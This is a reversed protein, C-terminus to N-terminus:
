KQDGSDVDDKCKQWRHFFVYFHDQCRSLYGDGKIKFRDLNYTLQQKKQKKQVTRIFDAKIVKWTRNVLCPM